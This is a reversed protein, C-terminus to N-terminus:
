TLRLIQGARDVWSELLRGHLYYFHVLEGLPSLESM